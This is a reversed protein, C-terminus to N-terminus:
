AGAAKGGLFFGGTCVSYSASHAGSSAQVSHVSFDQEQRSVFRPRGDRLGDSYRSLYQLWHHRIVHVYKLKLKLTM